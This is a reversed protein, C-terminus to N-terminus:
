CRMAQHEVFKIGFAFKLDDISIISIVVVFEVWLVCARARLKCECCDSGEGIGTSTGLAHFKGCNNYGCVLGSGCGNRDYYRDCDACIADILNFPLVLRSGVRESAVNVDSVQAILKCSGADGLGCHNYYCYDKSYWVCKKMSSCYSGSAKCDADTNCNM